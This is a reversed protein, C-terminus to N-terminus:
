EAAALEALREEFRDLIEQVLGSAFRQLAVRSDEDTEGQFAAYRVPGVKEYGEANEDDCFCRRLTKLGVDMAESHENSLKRQVFLEAVEDTSGAYRLVHVLDGADKNANRQELAIAKLIVFAPVDAFRIVRSVVGGDGLLRGTVEKEDFWDHVIEAYTVALASVREGDVNVPRGATQGVADRLFEVIVDMQEDVRLKWQWSSTKGDKQFREFGRETLQAALSAYGEGADVLAINLVIDVDATGAHAPVDPPTAPTLYRPVLGGVLRLTHGLSGFAGILTLLTRECAETVDASYGSATTPKVGAM